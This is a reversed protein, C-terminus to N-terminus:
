LSCRGWSESPSKVGASYMSCFAPSEVKFSDIQHPLKRHLWGKAIVINDIMQNDARISLSVKSGLDKLPDLTQLKQLEIRKEPATGRGYLDYSVYAPVFATLLGALILLIQWLRSEGSM